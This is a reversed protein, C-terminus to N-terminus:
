PKTKYIKVFTRKRDHTLPQLSTAWLKDNSLRCGSEICYKIIHLGAQERMKVRFCLSCGVFAVTWLLRYYSCFYSFHFTVKM